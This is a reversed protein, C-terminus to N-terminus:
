KQTRMSSVSGAALALNYTQVLKTLEEARNAAMTRNCEAVSIAEPGGREPNSSRVILGEVSCSYSRYTLWSRQAKILSQTAHLPPRHHHSKSYEADVAKLEALTKAYTANLRQEAETAGRDSCEAIDSPSTGKM